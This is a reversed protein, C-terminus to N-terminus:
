LSGTITKYFKEGIRDVSYAQIKELSNRGMKKRLEKNNMLIQLKEQFTDTDYLPILFGNKGDDILESPGAICDFAIVPLGAAMAEGIVNPFGESSSPFAFIKSKQYWSQVDTVTGTLFVKDDLNKEKILNKLSSMGDYQSSNGGVIVLKWMQNKVKSFIKILLDFHKTQILRGVSLIINERQVKETSYDLKFPNPITEIRNEPFKKQYIENAVDTQVIIGEAYPYLKNRFFEQFGVRRKGPEARDAVFVPYGLYFTSLLVLNNWNEGFSLLSDPQISKVTSRLFFLTKLTSLFRLTNNFEFKPKHVQIGDPISFFINRNRGYLILHIELENNLQFYSLLESTVKEMGGPGLSPILICIRSM